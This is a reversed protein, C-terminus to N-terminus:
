HIFLSHTWHYTSTSLTYLIEQIDFCDVKVSCFFIAEVYVCQWRIFLCSCWSVNLIWVTRDDFGFYGFIGSFFSKDCTNESIILQDIRVIKKRNRNWVRHWYFWTLACNVTSADKCGVTKTDRLIGLWLSRYTNM